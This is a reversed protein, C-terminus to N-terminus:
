AAKPTFQVYIRQPAASFVLTFGSDANAIGEAMKDIMM